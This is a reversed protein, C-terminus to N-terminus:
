SALNRLIEIVCEISVTLKITKNFCDLGHRTIKYWNRTIHKVYIEIAGIISQTSVHANADFVHQSEQLFLFSYRLINKLQKRTISVTLLETCKEELKM